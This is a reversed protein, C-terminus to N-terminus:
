SSQLVPSAKVGVGVGEGEESTLMRVETGWERRDSVWM